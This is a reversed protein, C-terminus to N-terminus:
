PEACKSHCNVWVIMTWRVNVDDPLTVFSYELQVAICTWDLQAFVVSKRALFQTLDGSFQLGVNANKAGGPLTNM